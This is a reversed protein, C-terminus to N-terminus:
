TIVHTPSLDHAQKPLIPGIIGKEVIAPPAAITSTTM